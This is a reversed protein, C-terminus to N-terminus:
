VMTQLHVQEDALPTLAVSIEDFRKKPLRSQLAIICCSACARSARVIEAANHRPAHIQARRWSARRDRSRQHRAKERRRPLM